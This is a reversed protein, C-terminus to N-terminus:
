PGFSNSLIGTCYTAPGGTSSSPVPTPAFLYQLLASFRKARFNSINLVIETARRRLQSPFHYDETKDSQVGAARISGISRFDPGSAHSIFEMDM